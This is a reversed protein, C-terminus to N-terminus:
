RKWARTIERKGPPGPLKEVQFGAERLNRKVSGKCSYTTLVAGKNAQNYLNKFVDVSWLEPQVEPSFADFYIVDFLRGTHINRFDNKEKYVQFAANISVCKEWNCEHIKQFVSQLDKLQDPLQFTRYETETLPYKEITHYYIELKNTEAYRYTLLANLGTGFGLELVQISKRTCTKLAVSIFIHQSETVAGHVSHYHEGLDPVYFTPSGDETTVQNRKM